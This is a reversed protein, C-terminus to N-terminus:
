APVKAAVPRLFRGLRDILDRRITAQDFLRRALGHGGGGVRAAQAPDTLLLVVADAFEGATVALEIERGPIAPIGEAGALTSVVPCAHAFAELIKVRTGTGFRIPAVAVAAEAYAGATTEVFGRVTVRRAAAAAAAAAAGMVGVVHFEAAPVKALVKPWVDTLFYRLGDVNPSDASGACNGVFLVVPEAATRAPPTAPVDVGNPVVEPRKPWPGAADNEQCVFSLGAAAVAAYEFARLKALDGATRRDIPGKVTADLRRRARLHEPDDVDLILRPHGLVGAHHAFEIRYAFVADFSAPDLGAVARRVAANDPRVMRPLPSFLDSLLGGVRGPRRGAPLPLPTLSRVYAPVAADSPTDFMALHLEGAVCALARLFLHQRVLYGAGGRWPQGSGVFLLRKAPPASPGPLVSSTFTVSAPSPPM